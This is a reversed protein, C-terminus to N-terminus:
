FSPPTIATVALYLEPGPNFTRHAVKKPIYISDGAELLICSNEFEFKGKGSIVFTCEEGIHSLLEPSSYDGAEVEWYIMELQGSVDPTLLQLSISSESAKFTKRQNKRVVNDRFDREELLFSFVPRDLAISIKRLATLSPEIKNLEVQSLYSISLGTEDAIEKLKLNNKKRVKRITDGLM